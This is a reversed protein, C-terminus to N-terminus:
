MGLTEARQLINSLIRVTAADVMIGGVNVSGAGEAEARAYAAAVERARAIDEPRPTFIEQAAEIQAPHIAWKGVCGLTLARRCEERYADENKFSAFPGDVADIGAARAAMVLRFRPYYWVDGPYGGSGASSLFRVDIGHSASYDGMGFILSETRPSAKAIADVDALGEVEEILLELGIRKAIGLNSEIQDLLTAVFLVDSPKTVKPVIITDLRAHAGEVVAIVDGYCWKTGVDNIRVSLTKRGWDLDNIATVVQRRAAPKANPAVADELDLFVHDAATETAKAIMKSSSGPVALQCRRPRRIKTSM